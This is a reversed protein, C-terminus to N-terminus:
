RAVIQQRALRRAEEQEAIRRYVVYYKVINGVYTVTERGVDRAAQLEVQGFWRDPDLGRNAARARLEGVRGPGANYAALAFLMRNFDDIGDDDFYVDILHRLYKAGAHINDDARDIRPIGVVPDKATAPLMQMIGIAGAQSRRQQDLGSEQFGQAALLWPDFRYRDGYTAFLDLLALFRRRQEPGGRRLQQAQVLYRNAVINGFETGRATAHAFADLQAALKPSGQRFAWGINGGQRLVLDERLTLNPLARAWARAKHEDVVALPLLGANVLELLDEDEILDLVARLQLGPKGAARLRGDLANLSAWYSSSPRTQIEVQALDDLSTLRPTAPGTVVIERVDSLFPASFAVERLREPTITLNAAAIDGLGARLAPIIQDRTVPVFYIQVPRAGTKLQLNLRRELERAYEATVGKPQGHDLYYDTRNPVVLMRILRRKVMGDFDGRWPKNEVLEGHVLPPPTDDAVAASTAPPPPRAAPPAATAPVAPAPAAPTSLAPVPVPTAPQLPLDAASPAPAVSAAAPLELAAQQVAAQQVPTQQVAAPAPPPAREALLTVALMALLGLLLGRVLGPRPRRSWSPEWFLERRSEAM